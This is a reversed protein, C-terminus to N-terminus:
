SYINSTDKLIETFPDLRRIRDLNNSNVLQYGGTIRKVERKLM